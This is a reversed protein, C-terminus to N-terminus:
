ELERNILDKLMITYAEKNRVTSNAKFNKRGSLLKTM